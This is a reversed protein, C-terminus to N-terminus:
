AQALPAPRTVGAALELEDAALLQLAEVAREMRMFRSGKVLVSRVARGADSHVFGGLAAVLQAADDFRPALGSAAMGRGAVWTHEIGLSRAHEGIEAHFAPGQAGVEGMDGLIAWRPAPLSHL